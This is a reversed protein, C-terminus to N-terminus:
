WTCLYQFDDIDAVANGRGPGQLTVSFDAVHDDPALFEGLEYFSYFPQTTLHFDVAAHELGDSERVAFHVRGGGTFSGWIGANCHADFPAPILRRLGYRQFGAVAVMRGHITGSHPNDRSAGIVGALDGNQTTWVDRESFTEFSNKYFVGSKLSANAAAPASLSAGVLAALVAVSRAVGRNRHRWASTTRKFRIM